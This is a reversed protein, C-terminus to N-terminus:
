ISDPVYKRMDMAGSTCKEEHGWKYMNKKEQVWLLMHQMEMAWNIHTINCNRQCANQVHLYIFCKIYYSDIM